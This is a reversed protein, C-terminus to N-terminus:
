NAFTEVLGGPWQVEMWDIFRADGLGFHQVFSNHGNFANQSSVERFQTVLQGGITARVRVKTGIGSRNSVTGALRLQFWHNEPPATNRYLGKSAGPSSVYLDVDGDQDYDAAVTTTAPASTLSDMLVSVFTGNGQNRYYRNPFGSTRTVYCDLDGDNDFDEWCSSLNWGIDGAIPGVDFSTKRVYTGNENRYLSNNVQRYNTIFCDLDGDNDYDPWNIIQGDRVDTALPPTLHRDLLPSGGGIRTNRYFYDVGKSGNAPGAGISLDLDGDLDSDCWTAVTYPATGVTVDTSTDQTLTGNGANHLLRNPNAGTFGFPAAIVLDVFGDADYDGWACTWGANGLSDAVAGTTVTTFGATGDNRLLRSGRGAFGGAIMLDPDGDNDYDAWSCGLAGGNNAVLQKSFVGGGANLFLGVNGVFLDVWGNQDADIWSVGTFGAVGADTTVPNAPDNVRTFTQAGADHTPLLAAALALMATTTRGPLRHPKFSM